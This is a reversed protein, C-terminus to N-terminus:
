FTLNVGFSTVKMQPFYYSAGGPSEPDWDKFKSQTFLNTGAVFIRLTQIRHRALFNDPFTYGLEVNKLRWYAANRIWYTSTEKKYQSRNLSLRPYTPNSNSGDAVYRGKIVELPNAGFLYEWAAEEAFYVSSRGAGQILASM